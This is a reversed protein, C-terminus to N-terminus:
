PGAVGPTAPAPSPLNKPLVAVRRGLLESLQECVSEPRGRLALPRRDPTHVKGGLENADILVGTLFSRLNGSWHANPADRNWPAQTRSQAASELMLSPVEALGYRSMLAPLREPESRPFTCM